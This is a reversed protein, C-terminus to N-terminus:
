TLLYAALKEGEFIDELIGCSKVHVIEAFIHMKKWLLTQTLSQPPWNEGEIIDRWLEAIKLM